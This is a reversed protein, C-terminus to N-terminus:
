IIIDDLQWCSIIKNMTLRDDYAKTQLRLIHEYVVGNQQWGAPVTAVETVM